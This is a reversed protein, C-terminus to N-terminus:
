QPQESFRTYGKNCEPSKVLISIIILIIGTILFAISYVILPATIETVLQALKEQLGPILENNIPLLNAITDGARSIIVMIATTISVTIFSIGISRVLPKTRWRHVMAIFLIMLIALVVAAVYTLKIYSVIQKAQELVAMTEKGLTTETIEFQKPILTDIKDYAQSLYTEIVDEPLGALEPPLSAMAYQRLNQKLSLKLSELPIVINLERNGKLYAYGAYIATNTQEKLWPKLDTVITDIAEQAGEIPLQATFKDIVLSYIDFKDLESNVFEPNLITLSITTIIGLIFLCLVLLSCLFFLLFGRLIGM